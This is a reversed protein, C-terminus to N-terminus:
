RYAEPKKPEVGLKEYNFGSALPHYEGVYDVSSTPQIQVELGLCWYAANITLRRLGASQYDKASGMTVHFVRATQGTNGTWTKTWAIPLPEKKTNVADTPKRGLLPQGFVLAKCGEPLSKGEPYTRYVDSPGWIDDVGRLIPHDRREEVLIGRTSDAHWAGHHGRFSGGLVDDGFNVRKGNKEYPFNGLFGHNATRIGIIPKGSDLYEVVHKIQDDPLTVLRSFLVVLDASALHELGPINHTISKDEWRIKLTPDVENQENLSFLVTCNFGHREALIKALMPLSQESRYEQDAAILVIHKGQGPGAAAQFTLWLPSDPVPHAAIPPAHKDRLRTWYESWYKDYYDLAANEIHPADVVKPSQAPDFGKLHGQGARQRPSVFRWESDGLVDKCLKALAPDYSKLQARTHIHNHDHDMTRNTDYWCQVGEAWYESRNKHAYCEKPGGFVILVKDNRTVKVKANTPEGNVLIDGADLCKELLARSQDPFSTALADLLSVPTESKVRRFRQAARGDNWIGKARAREFAETLRDKLQKDFGAGDIVHGFEHILISEDQMGGEYELVDEEAFVVTPRGNKRTLFGRQRWNYFDLDKGTKNTAFQPLDSTLEEHGILICLVRNERIRQAVEPAISKMVMDFQYGAERITDNSVRDSAAILIDQVLMAKKYFSPDLKYEELQADTPPQVTTPTSEDATACAVLLLSFAAAWGVAYLPNRKRNM